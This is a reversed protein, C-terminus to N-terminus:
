KQATKQNQKYGAYFATTMLIYQNLSVGEKDAEIRLQKGLSKPLRLIFKETKEKERIEQKVEEYDRVSDAKHKDAEEIMKLDIEDPVAQPINDMKDFINM